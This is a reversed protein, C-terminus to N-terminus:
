KVEKWKFETHGSVPDVIVYEAVGAKVAEQRLQEASKGWPTSGLFLGFLFFLVSGCIIIFGENMISIYWM